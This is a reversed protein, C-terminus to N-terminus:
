NKFDDEKEEIKIMEDICKNCLEQWKEKQTELEEGCNQCKM